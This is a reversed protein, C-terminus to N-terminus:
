KDAEQKFHKEACKRCFLLKCKLCRFTALLQIKKQCGACSLKAFCGKNQSQIQYMQKRGWEKQAENM